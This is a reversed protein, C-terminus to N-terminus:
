GLSSAIQWFEADTLGTAALEYPVGPYSPDAHDYTGPERWLLIRASRPDASDAVQYLSRGDGRFAPHSQTTAGTPLPPNAVVIGVVVSRTGTAPDSYRVSFGDPATTVEARWDAGIAGPLLVPRSATVAAAVAARAQSPGMTQPTPRGGLQGGAAPPYLLVVAQESFGAGDFQIAYCGPTSAAISVDWSRTRPGADLALESQRPGGVAPTPALSLTGAGDLRHGRVLVPGSVRPGATVGITSSTDAKGPVQITMLGDLPVGPQSVYTVPGSQRAVAGPRAQVRCAPDALPVAALPRRQLEAVGAAARSAPRSPGHATWLLLGAVAIALVAAAAVAWRPGTRGPRDPLGAVARAALGPSPPGFGDVLQRVERRVRESM